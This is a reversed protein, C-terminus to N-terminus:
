INVILFSQILATEFHWLNYYNTTWTLPDMTKATMIKSGKM